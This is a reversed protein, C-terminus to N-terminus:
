VPGTDFNTPPGEVRSRRLGFPPFLNKVFSVFVSANFLNFIYVINILYLYNSVISAGLLWTLWVIWIYVATAIDRHWVYKYARLQHTNDLFFM